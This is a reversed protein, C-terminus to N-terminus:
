VWPLFRRLWHLLRTTWPQQLALIAMRLDFVEHTLRTVEYELAAIRPEVPDEVISPPPGPEVPPQQHWAQELELLQDGLAPMSGVTLQIGRNDM